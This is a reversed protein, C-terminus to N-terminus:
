NEGEKGDETELTAKALDEELEGTGELEVETAEAARVFEGLDRVPPQTRPGLERFCFFHIKFPYFFMIPAVTSVM